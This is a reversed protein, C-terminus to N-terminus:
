AAGGKIAALFAEGYKELRAKGVGSIASLAAMGQPRREAMERLSKDQFVVYPPVGAEAALRRRLASLRMFLGTAAAERAEGQIGEPVAPAAGEAVEPLAAEARRRLSALREAIDAGLRGAGEGERVRVSVAGEAEVAVLRGGITFEIRM